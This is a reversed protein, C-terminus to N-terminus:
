RTSSKGEFEEGVFVAFAPNNNWDLAELQDDGFMVIVDPRAEQLRDRLTEFALQIRQAKAKCEDLDEYPVDRRLPRRGRVENWVEPPIYLFPSHSTNYAGVVKAMLTAEKDPIDQIGLGVSDRVSVHL